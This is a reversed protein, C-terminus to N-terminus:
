DPELMRRMLDRSEIRRFSVEDCRLDIVNQEFDYLEWFSQDWGAEKVMDRFRIALGSIQSGTPLRGYIHRSVCRIEVAPGSPNKWNNVMVLVLRRIFDADGSLIPQVALSWIDGHKVWGDPTVVDSVTQYGPIDEVRM